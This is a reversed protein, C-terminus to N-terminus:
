VLLAPMLVAGWQQVQQSPEGAKCGPQPQPKPELQQQPEPSEVQRGGQSDHLVAQKPQPARGCWTAAAWPQRGTVGCYWM